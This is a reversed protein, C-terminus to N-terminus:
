LSIISASIKGLEITSFRQLNLENDLDELSECLPHSSSAGSDFFIRYWHLYATQADKYDKSCLLTFGPYPGYNPTIIFPDSFPIPTDFSSLAFRSGLYGFQAYLPINDNNNRPTFINEQTTEIISDKTIKIEYNSFPSNPEIVQAQIYFPISWVDDINGLDVPSSCAGYTVFHPPPGSGTATREYRRVNKLNYKITQPFKIFTDAFPDEETVEIQFRTPCFKNEYKKIPILYTGNLEDFGELEGEYYFDYLISGTWLQMNFTTNTEIKNPFDEVIIELFYPGNGITLNDGCKCCLCRCKGKPGFWSM